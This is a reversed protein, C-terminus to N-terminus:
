GLMGCVTSHSVASFSFVKEATDWLVTQPISPQIMTVRLFNEAVVRHNMRFLGGTFCAIVVVLPLVIEAQWVHRKAPNALIMRAACFLALSFWVVLFSVGYVGTISAFQILPVLQYQSVGVFSWPFGGRPRCEFNEAGMQEAAKRPTEDADRLVLEDREDLEGGDGSRFLM